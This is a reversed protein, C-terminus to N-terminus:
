ATRRPPARGRVASLAVAPVASSGVRAAAAWSFRRAVGLLVAAVAAVLLFIAGVSPKAIPRAAPLVPVMAAPAVAATVTAVRPQEAQESHVFVALTAGIVLAIALVAAQFTQQGRWRRQM